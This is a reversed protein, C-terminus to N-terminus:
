PRVGLLLAAGGTVIAIGWIVGAVRALRPEHFAWLGFAAYFLFSLIMGWATAEVRAVPLLRALLTALGAAAAYGGVLATLCRGAMSWGRGADQASAM